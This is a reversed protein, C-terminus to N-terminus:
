KTDPALGKRHHRGFGGRGHRFKGGKQASFQKFETLSIQGDKNVDMKEFRATLMEDRMVAREQEDLKGDKNTDYKALREAKRAERKAKWAEKMAPTPASTSSSGTDALAVGGVLTAAVLALALKMKTLM